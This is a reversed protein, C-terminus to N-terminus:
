DLQVNEVSGDPSVLWTQIANNHYMSNSGRVARLERYSPQVYGTQDIVRSQLLAERGNWDWDIEFCTLSKDFIPGKLRATRWNRGGDFSVDVRDVKGEGSWALGRVVHLGRGPLPREPCPSTIVSKAEQVFTYQRAKGSPLLDTYTDTEERTEWPHTGVEIRRLWKVNAVGEWGPLVLRLPYGQEPRLMEGNQAYAILADDLAKELPFSRAMAAADAGEALLWKAGKRLGAENLLTKLPVGTWESCSIMGHTYQLANLQAGRQELAGNGACEIFHIRSVAPYRKLDALSFKLPTDVLGHIVLLHQAPDIMPVGAHHREFHLGSPTIIGHLDALPTFSVASERTAQMWPLIRRVVSKEFVSPKGYPEAGVGVGLHHTWPPVPLPESEARSRGSILAGLSGLLSTRLFGRRTLESAETESDSRSKSM